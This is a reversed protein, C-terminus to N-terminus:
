APECPDRQTERMAALVRILQERLPDAFRLRMLEDPVLYLPLEVENRRDPACRVVFSQRQAHRRVRQSAHACHEAFM